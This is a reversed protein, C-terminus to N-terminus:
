PRHERALYEESQMEILRSATREFQFAVRDGRYLDIPPAAASVILNVNRDYLEDVLAIFRRAEDEHLSDFVPIDSVIVSQYNRAIEIYDEQSRPGSCLAMFDFWVVGGRECIVPIRRGEIEISSDPDVPVRTPWPRGSQNINRRTAPGATPKGPAIRSAAAANTHAPVTNNGAASSVPDAVAPRGGTDAHAPGNGRPPSDDVDHDALEDFLERLRKGTDPADSPLYTGAQTLRRLRYDTAGDVAVVDLHQKLLDITPLFRQRQLGDKYLNRPEVNSTAVLTVGRKFLAAFLGGLIMADAIDSVFFEDFCLVRTDQAIRDAVAELPAERQQLSKLEAHVDHMFRHFHRRRREPFPLSQYFLDMMWTKGRGVGGWLYIGRVPESASKSGLASFWRRVISADAEHAVILRQRLDNLRDVVAAQVPDARFGRESLQQAYLARLDM